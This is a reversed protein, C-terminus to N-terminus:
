LQNRQADEAQEHASAQSYTEAEGLLAEETMEEIMADALRVLWQGNGVHTSNEIIAEGLRKLAYVTEEEDYEEPWEM